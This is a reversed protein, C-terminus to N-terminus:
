IVRSPFELPIAVSGEHSSSVHQSLNSNVKMNTNLQLNTNLLDVKDFQCHYICIYTHTHTHTHTNLDLSDCLQVLAWFLM